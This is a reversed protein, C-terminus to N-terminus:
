KMWRARCCCPSPPGKASLRAIFLGGGSQEAFSRAMSLGLGTGDDKTTFFPEGARKLTEPSMGIGTDTADIRIYGGAPLGSWRDDPRLINEVTATLAFVGRSRMAQRANTAINLLV